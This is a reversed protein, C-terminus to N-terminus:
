WTPGAGAPPSSLTPTFDPISTSGGQYRISPVGQKWYNNGLSINGGATVFSVDLQNASDFVNDSIQGANIPQTTSSLFDLAYNWLGPTVINHDMQFGTTRQDGVLMPYIGTLSCNQMSLGSSSSLNMKAAQSSNNAAIYLNSFKPKCGSIDMSDGGSNGSKLNMIRANQLLTGGNGAMTYSVCSFLAMRFGENPGLATGTAHSTLTAPAATVAIIRFLGNVFLSCGKLIDLTSNELVYLQTGTVVTVSGESVVSGEVVYPSLITSTTIGSALSAGLRTGHVSKVTGSYDSEADGRATVKYSYYVGDGAPSVIADDYSTGTVPTGTIKTFTAGDSSKYVNYGALNVGTSVTWSLHINNLSGAATLSQPATPAVPSPSGGGGGNGCSALVVSLAILVVLQAVVMKM